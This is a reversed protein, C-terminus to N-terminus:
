KIIKNFFFLNKLFNFFLVVLLLFLLPIFINLFLGKIYVFFGYGVVFTMIQLYFFCYVLQGFAKGFSIFIKSLFEFFFGFLSLHFFVGLCGGFVYGFGMVYFTLGGGRAYIDPYFEKVFWENLEIKRNPNFYKPILTVLDDFYIFLNHDFKNPFNQVITLFTSFPVNLDSLGWFIISINDIDSLYSVFFNFKDISNTGIRSFRVAGSILFILTIGITLFIIKKTVTFKYEYIIFLSTILIIIISRHGGIINLLPFLLLIKTFTQLKKYKLLDGIISILLPLIISFTNQFLNEFYM